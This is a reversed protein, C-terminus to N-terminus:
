ADSPSWCEFNGLDFDLGDHEGEAGNVRFGLGWVRFGLGPRWTQVRLEM